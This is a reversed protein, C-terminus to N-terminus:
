YTLYCKGFPFYWHVTDLNLAKTETAKRSVFLMMNEEAMWVSSWSLVSVVGKHLLHTDESYTSTHLLKVGNDMDVQCLLSATWVIGQRLIHEHKSSNDKSPHDAINNVTFFTILLCHSM